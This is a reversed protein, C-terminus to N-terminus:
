EQTGDGADRSYGTFCQQGEFRDRDDELTAVVPTGVGPTSQAEGRVLQRVQGHLGSWYAALLVVVGAAVPVVVPLPGIFARLLGLALCLAGVVVLLVSVTIRFAARANATANFRVWDAYSRVLAVRFARESADTARDLGRADIGAIRPSATYTVGASVTAAVLAGVGAGFYPNAAGPLVDSGALSLASVVLGLLGTTFQLLSIAKGDIDTLTQLQTELTRQAETTAVELTPIDPATAGGPDLPEPDRGQDSGDEERRDGAM